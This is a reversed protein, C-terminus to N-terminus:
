QQQKQQCYEKSFAKELDDTFLGLSVDLRSYGSNYSSDYNRQGTWFVIKEIDPCRMTNLKGEMILLYVCVLVEELTCDYYYKTTRYLDEISRNKAPACTSKNDKDLTYYHKFYDDILVYIFTSLNDKLSIDEKFHLLGSDIFRKEADKLSELVEERNM